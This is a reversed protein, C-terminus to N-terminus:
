CGRKQGGEGREDVGRMWRSVVLEISVIVYMKEDVGRIWRSM